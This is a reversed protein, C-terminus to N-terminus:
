FNTRSKGEPSLKKLFSTTEACLRVASLQSFSSDVAWLLIYRGLPITGGHWLAGCSVVAIGIIDIHQLSLIFSM